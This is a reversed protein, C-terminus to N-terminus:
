GRDSVLGQRGRARLYGRDPDARKASNPRTRGRDSLGADRGDRRASDTTDNRRDHWGGGHAVHVRYPAQVADGHPLSCANPLAVADRHGGLGGGPRSVGRDCERDGSAARQRLRGSAVGPCHSRNLESPNTNKLFLRSIQAVHM